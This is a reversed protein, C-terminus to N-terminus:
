RPGGALRKAMITVPRSPVPPVDVVSWGFRRYYEAQGGTLLYLQPVGLDGALQEAFAVLERGVGRGRWAPAVFVSAMWPTLQQWEPL